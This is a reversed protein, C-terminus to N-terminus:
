PARRIMLYSRADDSTGNGERRDTTYLVVMEEDNAGATDGVRVRNEVNLPLSEPLPTRRVTEGGDVTEYLELGSDPIQASGGFIVHEPDEPNVWVTKVYTYRIPDGPQGEHNMDVHFVWDWNGQDDMWLLGGEVGLYIKGPQHDFGAIVNPRRNEIEPWQIVAERNMSDLQFRYVNVIDFAAECGQFIEGSLGPLMGLVCYYGFSDAGGHIWEWSDGLDSSRAISGGYGSVFLDGSDADFTLEHASAYSGGGRAFFEGVSMWSEGRDTSRYLPSEYMEEAPSLGALIVSDDDPHTWITYVAHGFDVLHEWEPEGDLNVRYLGNDTGVYANREHVHVSYALAGDPVQEILEFGGQFASSSGEWQYSLVGNGAQYGYLYVTMDAELAGDIELYENGPGSGDGNYGSYRISLGGFPEEVPGGSSILGSPYAVIAQSGQYLQIDLDRSSSLSLRVDEAGEPLTLANVWRGQSVWSSFEGSEAEVEANASQVFFLQSVVLLLAMWTTVQRSKAM